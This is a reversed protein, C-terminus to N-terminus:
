AEIGRTKPKFFAANKGFSMVKLHELKIAKKNIEKERVVDSLPKLAERM